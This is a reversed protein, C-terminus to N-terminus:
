EAPLAKTSDALLKMKERLDERTLHLYRQTTVISSHGLLEQLTRLDIGRRLAMSAFTHRLVHPSLGSLDPHRQAIARTYRRVAHPTIHKGCYGPFLWKTPNHEDMYASLLEDGSGVLPVVREKDGKGRFVLFTGESTEEVDDVTLKCIEGIRLGTRPLLELITRVPERDIEAIAAHYLALQKPSLAPRMKAKRGRARPLLAKLEEESYGAEAMLYHKVAARMPLITGLPMKRHVRRNIWELLDEDGASKVISRYKEQTSPLLGERRLQLDFKGM